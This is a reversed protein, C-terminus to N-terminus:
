VGHPGNEEIIADDDHQLGAKEEGGEVAQGFVQDMGEGHALDDKNTKTKAGEQHKRCQESM